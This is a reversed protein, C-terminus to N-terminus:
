KIYGLSRLREYTDDSMPRTELSGAAIRYVLVECADSTWRPSKDLGLAPIHRLVLSFPVNAPSWGSPGISILKPDILKGNRYVEISIPEDAKYTEFNVGAVHGPELKLLFRLDTVSRTPQVASLAGAKFDRLMHRRVPSASVIRIKFEVPQTTSRFLLHWGRAKMFLQQEMLERMADLVDPRNKVLNITEGPDERLNFLFEGALQPSHAESIERNPVVIYKWDARRLAKPGTYSGETIVISEVPASKGKLLPVLSKGQIKEPPKLGSLESLTPYLDILSVPETVLQPRIVEAFHIVLPVNAIEQYPLITPGHTYVGAHDSLAEGHDSTIVTLLPRQSGLISRVGEYYQKLMADIYSLTASYLGRLGDRHEQAEALSITWSSSFRYRNGKFVGSLMREVARRYLPAIETGPPPDYPDHAGTLHIYLFLPKRAPHSAWQRLWNLSKDLIQRDSIRNLHPVKHYDRMKFLAAIDGIFDFGRSFGFDWEAAFAVTHYGARQFWQPLTVFETSLLEVVRQDLQHDSLGHVSVHTSTFISPISGRTWTAQTTAAAFMAGESALRKFFSANAGGIQVDPYCDARTSDVILFLIDPQISSPIQTPLPAHNKWLIWLLSFIAAVILGAFQLGFSSRLDRVLKM